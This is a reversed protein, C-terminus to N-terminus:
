WRVALAEDSAAEACQVPNHGERNVAHVNPRCLLIAKYVDPLGLECALHSPRNGDKGPLDPDVGIALLRKIRVLAESERNACSKVLVSILGHGDSGRSSDIECATNSLHENAHQTTDTVYLRDIFMRDLMEDLKRWNRVLGRKWLKTGSPLKKYQSDPIVCRASSDSIGDKM